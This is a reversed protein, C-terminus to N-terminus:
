LSTVTVGNVGALKATINPGTAGSLSARVKSSHTLTVVKRGAATLSDFDLWTTGGDPSQQLKVTGGGFTGWALFEATM